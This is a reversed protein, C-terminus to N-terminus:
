RFKDDSRAPSSVSSARTSLASLDSLRRGRCSDPRDLWLCCASTSGLRAAGSADRGFACSASRGRSKEVASPSVRNGEIDPLLRRPGDRSAPHSSAKSSPRTSGRSNGPAGAPLSSARLQQTIFSCRDSLSAEHLSDVASATTRKAPALVDSLDRSVSLDVAKPSMDNMAESLQQLMATSGLISDVASIRDGPRLDLPAHFEPDSERCLATRWMQRQERTNWTAVPTRRRPHQDVKAVVLRPGSTSRELEMGIRSVDDGKRLPLATPSPRPLHARFSSRSQRLDGRRHLLAAQFDCSSWPIISVLDM